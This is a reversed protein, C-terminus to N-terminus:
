REGPEVMALLSIETIADTPCTDACAGCSVCTSERFSQHLGAAINAEFGRGTATLAFAGQVEDCARVCRGCSICLEHHLTLYPHREDHEVEHQAGPWRLAGHQLGFGRAVIALETHAAPPGPLESLVLEVTAAAVRLAAPDRTDVKMGDRCPTTCAAVPGPAGDVGILCVRCAGFPEQREDFCLTAIEGGRARVADLVTTGPAVETAVGDIEVRITATPTSM